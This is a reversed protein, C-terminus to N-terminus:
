LSQAARPRVLSASGPTLAVMGSGLALWAVLSVGLARATFLAALEPPAPGSFAPPEPAGMVHLSAILALGMIAAPWGRGFVLLALGLATTAATAWWWLQRTALDAAAAGPLEPPLALAPALQVAVWGAAGWLLGARLSAPAHGRAEALTMAAAALLGFGAYTLGFALVSIGDRVPDFTPALSSLERSEAETTGAEPGADPDHAGILALYHVLEGTEYREAELLVPQILLLHLFAALLGATFGGLLGGTLIQRLM